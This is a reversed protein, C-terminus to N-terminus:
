NELISRLSAVPKENRGESFCPFPFNNEGSSINAKCCCSRCEEDCWIGLLSLTDTIGLSPLLSSIRNPAGCCGRVAFLSTFRFASWVMSIWVRNLLGTTDAEGRGKGSRWPVCPRLLSVFFCVIDQCSEKGRQALTLLRTAWSSPKKGYYRTRWPPYSFPM